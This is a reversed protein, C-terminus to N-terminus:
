RENKEEELMLRHVSGPLHALDDEYFDPTLLKVLKLRRPLEGALLASPEGVYGDTVIAAKRIKNQIIHELACNIDTGDTSAYRGQLISAVPYDLVETSFIHILPYLWDRIPALCSFITELYGDMSGSVDLYVHVQGANERSLGTARGRFYVPSQGLSQMVSARRDPMTPYPFLTERETTTFIQRSGCGHAAIRAIAARIKRSVPIRPEAPEIVREALDSGRDRGGRPEFAPWKGVIEAVARVIGPDSAAEGTQTEGHTGLLAVGADTEMKAAVLDFIDRYTLDGEDTYLARHAELLDGELKWRARGEKGPSWSEPPRLLAEFGEDRYLGTFFSTYEYGPMLKCLMANIVADFAFNRAPTVLPFLRTHGLVLHYMEHMLLMLLHEDTRCRKEVFERNFLLRPPACTRVAATPIERSYAISFLGLLHDLSLEGAPFVNYIKWKLDNISLAM